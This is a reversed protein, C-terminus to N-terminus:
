RDSQIERKREIQRGSQIEREKQRDTQRVTDREKKDTQIEREMLRYTERERERKRDTQRVGCSNASVRNRFITFFDM